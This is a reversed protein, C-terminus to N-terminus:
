HTSSHRTPAAESLFPVNRGMGVQESTQTQVGKRQVDCDHTRVAERGTAEWWGAGTYQYMASNIAKYHTGFVKRVAFDDFTRGRTYYNFDLGLKDCLSRYFADRKRDPCKTVQESNDQNGAGL